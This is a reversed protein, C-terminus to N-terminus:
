MDGSDGSMSSVDFYENTEVERKEYYFKKYLLVLSYIIGLPIAVFYVAYNLLSILYYAPNSFDGGVSAAWPLTFAPTPAFANMNWIIIAISLYNVFINPFTSASTTWQLGQSRGKTFPYFLNSGLHGTQDVFVHSLMAFIGMFFASISLPTFLGMFNGKFLESWPAYIAFALPGTIVGLTISHSWQR